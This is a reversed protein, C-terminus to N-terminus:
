NKGLAEIIREMGFYSIYRNSLNLSILTTNQEIMKALAEVGSDEFAPGGSINLDAIYTNNQLLRALVIVQSNTISTNIYSSKHLIEKEYQAAMAEEFAKKNAFVSISFISVFILAITWGFFRILQMKYGM